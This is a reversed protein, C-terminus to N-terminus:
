QNTYAKSCLAATEEAKQSEPEPWPIHKQAITDKGVETVEVPYTQAARYPILSIEDRIMEATVRYYIGLVVGLCLLTSGCLAAIVAPSLGVLWGGVGVLIQAALMTSICAAKLIWLQNDILTKELYGMEAAWQLEALKDETCVGITVQALSINEPVGSLEGNKAMAYIVMATVALLMEEGIAEKLESRQPVTECNSHEGADAYAEPFDTNTLVKRVMDQLLGDRLPATPSGSVQVGLQRELFECQAELPMQALLNAVATCLYKEPDEMAGDCANQFKSIWELVERAMLEGQRPSKDPLIGCYIGSLVSIADEGDQLQSIAESSRRIIYSRETDSLKTM